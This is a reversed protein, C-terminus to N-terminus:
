LSLEVAFSKAYGRPSAAVDILKRGPLRVTLHITRFAFKGRWPREVFVSDRLFGEM